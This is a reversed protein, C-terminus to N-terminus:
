VFVGYVCACMLPTIPIDYVWCVALLFFFLFLDADRRNDGSEEDNMMQTCDPVGHFNM